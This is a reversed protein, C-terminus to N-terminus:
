DRRVGKVIGALDEMYGHWASETILDQWMLATLYGLCEHYPNRWEGPIGNVARRLEDIRSQLPSERLDAAWKELETLESM